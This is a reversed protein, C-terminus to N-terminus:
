KNKLSPIKITIGYPVHDPDKIKTKNHEAILTWLKKTNYFKKSVTILTEGEKIMYTTLTGTIEYNSPDPDFLTTSQKKEANKPIKVTDAKQKEKQNEKKVALKQEMQLRQSPTLLTDAYIASATNEQQASPIVEKKITNNVKVQEPFLQMITEPNYLFYIVTGGLLVILVIISIFYAFGPKQRIKDKLSVLTESDDKHKSSKNNYENPNIIHSKQLEFAIIEEASLKTPQNSTEEDKIKVSSETALAEPDVSKDIISKHEKKLYETQSIPKISSIESEGIAKASQTDNGSISEIIGTEIPSSQTASEPSVAIEPESKTNLTQSSVPEAEGEEEEEDEEIQTDNLVTGENLTVTEFHAFPKNIIERLSQDPTFSVKTHGQIEFREGTNVNISERSDVDILKFTGLGKIKVYKDKELAEEILLFLTKAFMDADSKNLGKKESLLDAINQISVKESM